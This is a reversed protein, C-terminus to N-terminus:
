QQTLHYLLRAFFSLRADNPMMKAYFSDKKQIRGNETYFLAGVVRDLLPFGWPL